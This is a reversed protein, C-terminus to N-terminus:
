PYQELARRLDVVWVHTDPLSHPPALLRELVSAVTATADMATVGEDDADCLLVGSDCRM